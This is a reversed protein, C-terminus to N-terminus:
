ILKNQSKHYFVVVDDGIDMKSLVPLGVNSNPEVLSGSFASSELSSSSLSGSNCWSRKIFQSRQDAACGKSIIM